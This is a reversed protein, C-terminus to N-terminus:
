TKGFGDTGVGVRGLELCEGAEFASGIAEATGPERCPKELRKPAGANAERRMSSVPGWLVALM